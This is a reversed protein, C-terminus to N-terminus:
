KTFLAAAISSNRLEIAAAASTKATTTPRSAASLRIGGDSSYSRRTKM